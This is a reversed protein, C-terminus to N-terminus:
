FSPFFNARAMDALQAQPMLRAAIPFIHEDENKMHPVMSGALDRFSKLWAGSLPRSVLDQELRYVKRGVELHEEQMHHYIESRPLTTKDPELYGLLTPFLVSSERHLHIRHRERFHQVVASARLVSEEEAPATSLDGLESFAAKFFAHDDALQELITM